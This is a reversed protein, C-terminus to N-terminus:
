GRERGREREGETGRREAYVQSAPPPPVDEEMHLEETADREGPMHATHTHTYTCIDEDMHLEETADRQGSMHATHMYTSVRCVCLTTKKKYFQTKRMKEELLALEYLRKKKLQTGYM